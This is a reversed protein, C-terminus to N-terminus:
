GNEKYIHPGETCCGFVGNWVTKREGKLEWNQIDLEQVWIEGIGNSTNDGPSHTGTFYVKGNTDFFIDPDIGPAGDIIHPDSWPGKPDKATIVFNRMLGPARDKPAYVNTTIIYFVGKNYRITPAHIGGDSQVDLLNMNGTCQEKRHLGYGILEWNVLDKSHHIPLGPFYEFSSNVIFYDDGVRCISPDPHAGSIVPNIFNGEKAFSSGILFIFLLLRM